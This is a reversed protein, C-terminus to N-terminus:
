VDLSDVFALWQPSKFKGFPAAFKPLAKDIRAIAPTRAIYDVRVRVANECAEAEARGNGNFYADREERARPEFAVAYPSPTGGGRIGNITFRAGRGRTYNGVNVWSASALKLKAVCRKDVALVWRASAGVRMIASVMSPTRAIDTFSPATAGSSHHM